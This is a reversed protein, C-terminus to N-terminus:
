FPESDTDLDPPSAADDGASPSPKPPLPQVPESEIQPVLATFWPGLSKLKLSSCLDTDLINEEPEWTNENEDFGLWKILFYYKSDPKNYQVERIDDIAYQANQKLQECVTQLSEPLSQQLSAEPERCVCVRAGVVPRGIVPVHTTHTM